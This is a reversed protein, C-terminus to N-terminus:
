VEHVSVHVSKKPSFQTKSNHKLVVYRIMQVLQYWLLQAITNHKPKFLSFQAITGPAVITNQPVRSLSPKWENVFEVWLWGLILGLDVWFWSLIRPQVLTSSPNIKPQNRTSKPNIKPQNQTSKPNIKPQNQTSRPNFSSQNRALRHNLQCVVKKLRHTSFKRIIGSISKRKITKLPPTLENM